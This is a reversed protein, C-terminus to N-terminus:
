ARPNLLPMLQAAVSQCESMGFTDGLQAPYHLLVGLSWGEGIALCSIEWEDKSAPGFWGNKIAIRGALEPPFAKRPGFDGEGRVGRMQTLLWSTWPGAARGDAICVGLRAADRASIMTDGWHGPDGTTETLGCVSILRNVSALAGNQQHYATAIGNDSDRIMISLEDLVDVAPIRPSRRLFDAAIWVKIMSMTSATRALNASGTTEGTRTNILAWSAFGGARFRVPITRGASGSPSPRSPIPHSIAHSRSIVILTLGPGAMLISIVTALARLWRTRM